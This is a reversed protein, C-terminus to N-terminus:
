RIVEYLSATDNAAAETLFPYRPIKQATNPSSVIYMITHDNIFKTAEAENMLGSFFRTRLREKTEPYLTHVPHGTFTHKGSIVPVLSDYPLTPDMLVTGTRPSKQITNLMDIVPLPIHNIDGYLVAANEKTTRAEVQALISPATLGIYILILLTPVFGAIQKGSSAPIFKTQLIIQKLKESLIIWGDAAVLYWVLFSAPHIWRTPSTKLIGPIGSSFLLLSMIGYCMLILRIPSALRSFAAVGFPIFVIVPGLSLILEWLSVNVGQSAEWTKAASYLPSADFARNVMAAGVAAGILGLGLHINQRRPLRLVLASTIIAACLMLMQIPSVTAALFCVLPFLSPIIRHTTGNKNGGSMLKASLIAVGLLLITQLTQHPVGGLRNLAPSPSFWMQHALTLAGNKLFSGLDVANSASVAFLFAIIQSGPRGPFVKRTIFSILWFLCIVAITLSVSYTIFPSFAFLGGLKGMLVNPWYVWTDAMAENTFLSRSRFWSGRAGEAMQSVYLFYDAYYHAIWAFHRDKPNQFWQIIVHWFNAVGILTSIAIIVLAQNRKETVNGMTPSIAPM